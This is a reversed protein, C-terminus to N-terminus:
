DLPRWSDTVPNYAAATGLALVGPDGCVELGGFVIFERGTWTGSHLCRDSLPAPSLVRWEDTTPDYAAGDGFVHDGDSDTAGYTAFGGWMLVETGTWDADLWEAAAVPLPESERWSDTAPDYITLASRHAPGAHGGVVVVVDGTWLLEHGEISQTSPPPALDRWTQTAPNFAVGETGGSGSYGGFFVAEAGTWVGALGEVPALGSGPLERWSDEAPLYAWVRDDPRNTSGGAIILETGTWVAAGTLSRDEPLPSSESWRDISPNYRFVATQDAGGGATSVGVVVMEAGAWVARLQPWDSIATPAPTLERTTGTAPDYALGTTLPPAAFTGSSGGFVFLEDDYWLAAHSHRPAFPATCGVPATVPFGDSFTCPDPQSVADTAVVRPACDPGVDLWLRLALENIGATALLENSRRAILHLPRVSFGDVELSDNVAAAAAVWAGVSPYEVSGAPSLGLDTVPGSGLLRTVAVPDHANYADVLAFLAEEVADRDVGAVCPADDAAPEPTPANTPPTDAPPNDSLGASGDSITDVETETGGDSEGSGLGLRLALAGAVAVVLVTAVLATTRRSRTPKTPLGTTVTPPSGAPPAVEAIEQALQRLRADLESM